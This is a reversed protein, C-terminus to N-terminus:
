IGRRMAFFVTHLLIAVDLSLCRHRIYFLDHHLNEHIPYPRDSSLQWLGTIGPRVQLREQQRGDYQRTIFPMEPRPGVLSMQGLLVNILQPLEDLSTRRLFRGVTTIRPDRSSKPSRQYRRARCSMSRFKYMRFLQGDLGARKQVFLAPGRSTLRILLAIFLFLPCLLVLLLAAGFFDVIRKAWAYPVQAPTATKQPILLDDLDIRECAPPSGVSLYAVRSGAQAAGGELRSKQESSLGTAAIVLLDCHLSRLLGPTVPAREVLLPSDSRFAMDLRCEDVWRPEEDLIAVVTLALRPSSHLASAVRRGAPSAGYIVVNETGYGRPNLTRLLVASLRRQSMLAAPVLVVAVVIGDYSVHSDFVLYGPLLLVLVQFSARVAAATERVPNVVLATHATGRRNLLAAILCAIFASVTLTKHLPYAASYHLRVQLSQVAFVVATCTFFDALLEFAAM